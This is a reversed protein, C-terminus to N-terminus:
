EYCCWYSINTTMCVIQCCSRCKLRLEEWLTHSSFLVSSFFLFDLLGLGLHRILVYFSIKAVGFLQFQNWCLQNLLSYEELSCEGWIKGTGLAMYTCVYVCIYMCMYICVYVYIYMCMYIYICVCIYMCVYPIYTCVCIYVYVCVCWAKGSM